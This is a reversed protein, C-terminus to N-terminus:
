EHRDGLEGRYLDSVDLLHKDFPELVVAAACVGLCRAGCLVEGLRESDVKVTRKGHEVGGLSAQVAGQEERSVRGPILGNKPM